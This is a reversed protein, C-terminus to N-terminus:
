SGHNAGTHDAGNKLSSQLQRVTQELEDLKAAVGTLSNGTVARLIRTRALESPNRAAGAACEAQLREFEDRTVHFAVPKLPSRNRPM